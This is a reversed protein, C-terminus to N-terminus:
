ALCDAIGEYWSLDNVVFIGLLQMGIFLDILIFVAAVHELPEVEGALRM